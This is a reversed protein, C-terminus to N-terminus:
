RWFLVELDVAAVFLWCLVVLLLFELCIVASHWSAMLTNVVVSIAMFFRSSNQLFGDLSFFNKQYRDRSILHVLACSFSNLSSDCMTIFCCGRWFVAVDIRLLCVSNILQRLLICNCNLRKSSSPWSLWDEPRIHSSALMIELVPFMDWPDVGTEISLLSSLWSRLLGSCCLLLQVWLFWSGALGHRGPVGVSKRWPDIEAWVFKSRKRPAWLLCVSICCQSILWCSCFRSSSIVVNRIRECLGM